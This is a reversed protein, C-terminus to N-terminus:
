IVKAEKTLKTFLEDVSAVRQGAKRSPPPTISETKESGGSKVGLDALNLVDIPKRKAMTIGRLSALRPGEQYAHTDPTAGNKVSKPLVVRLDVSVVAPLPIRKTEVGDDVERSVDVTKAERNWTVGAAFCAQPLNLLGAVRQAVQNGENDQSLKGAILLDCSERKFVEAITKAVAITDLEDPNANAIIGRDAGMALFQTIHQRQDGPCISLVVVEALRDNKGVVEALRLATEVAYEDFANPVWKLSSTDLAGNAFKLSADPDPIRKVTVLIKM